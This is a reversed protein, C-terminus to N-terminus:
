IAGVGRRRRHQRPFAPPPAKSPRCAALRCRARGSAMLNQLHKVKVAVLLKAIHHSATCVVHKGWCVFRPAVPIGLCLGFDFFVSRGFLVTCKRVMGRRIGSGYFFGLSVWSFSQVPIGGGFGFSLIRELGEWGGVTPPSSRRDFSRGGPRAPSSRPINRLPTRTQRSINTRSSRCYSTLQRDGEEGGGKGTRGVRSGHRTSRSKSRYLGQTTTSTSRILQASRKAGIPPM